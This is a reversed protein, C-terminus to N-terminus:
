KTSEKIHEGGVNLTILFCGILIHYTLRKLQRPPLIPGQSVVVQADTVVSKSPLSIARMPSGFAQEFYLCGVRIM